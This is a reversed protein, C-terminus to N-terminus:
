IYAYQRPICVAEPHMSGRSAYQRQICVAEPHMSGRSAYQRPICVAEPHMSGRAANERFYFELTRNQNGCSHMGLCYADRPPICGTSATHMRDLCYAYIQPLICIYIYIYIYCWPCSGPHQPVDLAWPHVSTGVHQVVAVMAGKHHGPSATCKFKTCPQRTAPRQRAGKPRKGSPRPLRGAM